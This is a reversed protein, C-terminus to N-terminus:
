AGTIATPKGDVAFTAKITVKGGEAIEQSGFSKLWGPINWGKTNAYIVSHQVPAAPDYETEIATKLAAELEPSYVFEVEIEKCDVVDTPERKAYDDDLSTTGVEGREFQPPTVRYIPYATAGIKFKTGKAKVAKAM